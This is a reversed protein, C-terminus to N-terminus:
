VLDKRMDISTPEHWGHHATRGIEVFGRSAFLLQNEPLAVRVGLTVAAAGQRRAEAEVWDILIGAIGRRRFSPLVSLRGLYLSDAKPQWLVAGAAEGEIFALAAGGRALLAGISDVSEDASSSPPQLWGRYAAFSEHILYLILAADGPTAARVAVGSM